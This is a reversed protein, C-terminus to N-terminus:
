KPFRCILAWIRSGMKWQPFHFSPCRIRDAPMEEEEEEEKKVPQQSKM